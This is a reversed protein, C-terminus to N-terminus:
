EWHPPFIEERLGDLFEPRDQVASMYRTTLQGWVRGDPAAVQWDAIRHEPMVVREGETLVPIYSSAQTLAGVYGGEVRAIETVWIFERGDASQGVPLAFLMQAEPLGAGTEDFANDFFEPLTAAVHATMQEIPPTAPDLVVEQGMAATTLAM